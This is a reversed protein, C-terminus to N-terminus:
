DYLARCDANGPTAATAALLAFFAAMVRGPYQGIFPILARLPQLRARPRRKADEEMQAVAEAADNRSM